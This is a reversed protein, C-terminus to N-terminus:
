NDKQGYQKEVNEIFKKRQEEEIKASEAIKQQAPLPISRLFEKAAPDQKGTWQQRQITEKEAAKVKAAAEKTQMQEAAKGRRKEEERAMIASYVDRLSKDIGLIKQNLGNRDAQLQDALKDAQKVKEQMQAINKELEWRGKEIKQIQEDLEWKRQELSKKEAPLTTAQEKEAIFKQESQLKAEQEAASSLKQEWGRSEILINNKQLKIAPSKKEDIDKVQNEM